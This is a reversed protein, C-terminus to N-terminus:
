YYSSESAASGGPFAGPPRGKRKGENEGDSSDTEDGGAVSAGIADLDPPARMQTLVDEDLQPPRYPQPAHMERGLPLAATLSESPPIIQTNITDNIKNWKKELMQLVRGEELRGADSGWEGGKEIKKDERKDTWNQKLRSFGKMKAQALESAPRVDFEKLGAEIWAIAEGMKAQMDAEIGFFRFAKARATKQLNKVYVLLGDSVGPSASKLLSYAKSAHDAAALCIRSFLHVRVKPIDPAKYMWERDNTNREQAVLAAYPDDKFVALLTAEALALSALGKQVAGSIDVATSPFSPAEGSSSRTVLYEHVSNAQLLYKMATTIAQVRQEQSLVFSSYLTRLQVRALLTYTAALTNLVLSIEYDLGKGKVRTPERGAVTSSSLCPRWEVELERQLLIEVEEDAIAKSSLGADVALLYPIYDQLASLIVSLHSSQPRGSPLRKYTKLADRLVSRHTSVALILSPHSLSNYNQVLSASSTTPLNFPFPM